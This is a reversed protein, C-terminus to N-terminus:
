LDFKVEDVLKVAEDYHKAIDLVSIDDQKFTGWSSVLESAKVGEKVPYEFNVEAYMAQAVDGTLFDILKMADAKNPSHKALAAGSVNMHTGTTKQNPFNIFVSAAWEKQEPHKENTIMKGFYYSNGLSVDCIGEKIAKVQKRDNGQPKRALNAKVGELWEKAKEAGHHAIVSAILSLNYAHKGSRTCIKGKYEPKALDLYDFDDGLKGIRDKSSYVNRARTTLAIWKDGRFKAPINKEITESSLPQVVDEKVLQQLRSIDVTMIVDAPSNEGEQKVREVLGKKLFITNVKVGTKATFKEFIPKVLFEQRYSYVNVDASAVTVAALTILSLLTKKM